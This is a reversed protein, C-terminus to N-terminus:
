LMDTMCMDHMKMHDFEDWLNSDDSDNGDSVSTVMATVDGTPQVISTPCTSNRAKNLKRCAPCSKPMVLPKGDTTTREEWYSKSERFEPQCNHAIRLKCAITVVDDTGSDAATPLSMASTPPTSPPAHATAPLTAVRPARLIWQLLNPSRGSVFILQM